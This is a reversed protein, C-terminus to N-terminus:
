SMLKNTSVALGPTPTDSLRSFPHTEIVERTLASHCKLFL